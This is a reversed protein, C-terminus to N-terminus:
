VLLEKTLVGLDWLDKGSQEFQVGKTLVAVGPRRTPQTLCVCRPSMKAIEQAKPTPTRTLVLTPTGSEIRTLLHTQLHDDNFGYGIILLRASKDIHENALDRHKDFPADYGAKYKNVGPTIMLREVDIEISSRIPGNGARYWDFSGHPKLVIARPSHDLLPTKGSRPVIGRCSRMFSRKYDFAAAYDGIATTDVHLGAMECAVEVLRDYNPTLIPLGGTPKLVKLLFTTLRLTQNGTIVATVVEREKPLLFECTEATIWAELAPSPVNKQLAAELGEGADLAGRIKAWLTADAGRLSPARSKLHNALDPMGPVGEAVSLGSGVVLVLGDTFHEQIFKIVDDIIVAANYGSAEALM